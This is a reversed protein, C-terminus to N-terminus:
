NWLSAENAYRKVARSVTSYGVGFHAGIETMSFATSRYARAMAEDREPYQKEFDALAPVSARRQIKAVGAMNEGADPHAHEAVFRPDGLLLQHRVAKLPSPEDIGDLVFQQFRQVADDGSRGFQALLWETSLWDPRDVAGTTARYSSWKWDRPSSVMGARVPNLVVYRVLELLYSEKQVLIAKYRGQLVHGVMGHYRNFNQTYAGNLQRMGQSLNGEVTEVMLHYHNGMQCYAHVIFNCRVCVKGLIEMWAYRDSENLFIPSRRDGRSTVHYLAGPFELRLPRTM